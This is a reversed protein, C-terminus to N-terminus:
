LDKEKKKRGRKKKVVPAPPLSKEGTMYAVPEEGVVEWRYYTEIPIYNRDGTKLTFIGVDKVTIRISGSIIWQAREVPYKRWGYVAGPQDNWQHVDFGEMTLQQRLMAMNPLFINKWREIRYRSM